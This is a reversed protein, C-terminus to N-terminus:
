ETTRVSVVPAEAELLIKQATSGFLAKGVPSRKRGGIVIYRTEVGGAYELVARAVSSNVVGVPTVAGADAAEAIDEARNAAEQELRETAAEDPGSPGIDEGVEELDMVTLVHLEDGFAAALNAADEVVRVHDTSEAAVVIEM